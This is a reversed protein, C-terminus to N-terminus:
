QALFFKRMASVNKIECKKNCAIKLFMKLLHKWTTSVVDAREFLSPSMDRTDGNYIVGIFPACLCIFKHM